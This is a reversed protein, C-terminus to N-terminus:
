CVFKAHLEKLLTEVQARTLFPEHIIEHEHYQGEALWAFWRLIDHATAARAHIYTERHSEDMRSNGM